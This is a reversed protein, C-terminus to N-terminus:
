VGVVEEHSSVRRHPSVSQELREFAQQAVTAATHPEAERDLHPARFAHATNGSWDPLGHSQLYSSLAEEVVQYDHRDTEVALLRVGKALGPTLYYTVKRREMAVLM